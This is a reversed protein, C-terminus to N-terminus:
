QATLAIIHAKDTFHEIVLDADTTTIITQYGQLAAALAQRRAGDLESFVDDLLILPKKGTALELSNLQLLKLSLLLSRTEGRSAAVKADHNRITLLIDDRHPGTGTFGRNIDKQLGSSLKSLMSEAYDGGNSDNIYQVSVEDPKSSIKLYTDKINDSFEQILQKRASHVVGGLESLRLDWVFLEDPRPPNPRKLLANRQSLARRYNKLNSAYHPNTSSLISDLFDRRLSPEGTIINMDQPEFLIVPLKQPATLRVREVGQLVYSKAIIENQLKLKLVREEGGVLVGDLRAWDCNYKVLDIDAVKYSSGVCLVVLAEILSTKGSGNPGVVITVGDEFEFQGDDYSRFNQLRLSAFM